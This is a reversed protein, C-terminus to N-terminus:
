KCILMNTLANDKLVCYILFEVKGYATLISYPQFKQSLTENIMDAYGVFIKKFDKM